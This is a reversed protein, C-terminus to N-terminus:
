DESKKPKAQKKDSAEKNNKSSERSSEKQAEKAPAKDQKKTQTESSEKGPKEAKGEAKAKPAKAAEEKVPKEKKEKKVKPKAARPAKPEEKKYEAKKDIKPRKVAPESAKHSAQFRRTIADLTSETTLVSTADLLDKVNLNNVHILKVGRINRAALEVRCNSESDFDLVILVKKGILDLSKLVQAFDKTKNGSFGNFDKVVVLDDRKTALAAKIALVRMKRPMSISYDRPKPGFTVGGGAWLPSRISGARARGTGKQRWPKRGGGSVESRTKTSATGRRANALQRVVASHLVGDHTGENTKTSFIEEDLSVEGLKKGKLDLVQASTM